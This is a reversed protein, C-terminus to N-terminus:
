VFNPLPSHFFLLFLSVSTAQSESVSCLQHFLPKLLRSSEKPQHRLHHPLYSWIYPSTGKHHTSDNAGIWGGQRCGHGQWPKMMPLHVNGGKVKLKAMHCAPQPPPMSPVTNQGSGLNWSTEHTEAQGRPSRGNGHFFSLFACQPKYGNWSSPLSKCLHPGWGVWSSTLLFDISM